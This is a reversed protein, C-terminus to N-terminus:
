GQGRTLRRFLTRDVTGTLALNKERQYAVVARRTAEDYTGTEEIGLGRQIASVGEGESVWTPRASVPGYTQGLPLDWALSKSSKAM